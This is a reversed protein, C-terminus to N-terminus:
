GLIIREIFGNEWWVGWRCFNEDCWVGCVFWIVEGVVGM